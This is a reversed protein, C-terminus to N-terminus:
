AFRRPPLGYERIKNRMARLSIGLLEAAHTRNGSTADLTIELLNKELERLSLGPKLYPPTRIPSSADSIQVADARIEGNECLAVARRM